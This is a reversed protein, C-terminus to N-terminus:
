TQRWTNCSGGGDFDDLEALAKGAAPAAGPEFGREALQKAGRAQLVDRDVANREADRWTLPDREDTGIAGALRGADLHQRADQMWSRCRGPARSCVRPALAPLEGIADARDKTLARLEPIVQRGAVGERQERAHVLAIRARMPAPQLRQGFRELEARLQVPRHALEREPLAHATLDHGAQQVVRVTTKRSSGVM